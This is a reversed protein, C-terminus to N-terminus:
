RNRGRATASIRSARRSPPRPQAAREDNRVDAARNSTRRTPATPRMPAATATHKIPSPVGAGVAPQGTLLATWTALGVIGDAVLGRSFQYQQVAALTKSGYIGDAAVGIRRQLEAV